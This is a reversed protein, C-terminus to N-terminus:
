VFRLSRVKITADKDPASMTTKVYMTGCTNRRRIEPRVAIDGDDDDGDSDSPDFDLDRGGINKAKQFGGSNSSRASRKSRSMLPTSKIKSTDEGTLKIERPLDDDADTMQQCVDSLKKLAKTEEWSLGFNASSSNFAQSRSMDTEDDNRNTDEDPLDDFMESVSALQSPQRIISEFGGLSSVASQISSVRHPQRISPQRRILDQLLTDDMSSITRELEPRDEAKSIKRSNTRRNDLSEEQTGPVVGESLSNLMNAEMAAFFDKQKAEKEAIKQKEKDSILELPKKWQTERTVTNYYYKKGSKPDVASKWLKAADPM